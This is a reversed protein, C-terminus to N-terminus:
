FAQCSVERLGLYSIFCSEMFFRVRVAEAKSENM